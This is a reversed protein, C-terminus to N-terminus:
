ILKMLGNFDIGEQTINLVPNFKKIMEIKKPDIITGDIGKNSIQTSINKLNTFLPEFNIKNM